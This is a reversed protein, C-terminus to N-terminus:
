FEGGLMAIYQGYTMGKAKAEAQRQMRLKHAAQTLKRNAESEKRYDRKVLNNAMKRADNDSVVDDDSLLSILGGSDVEIAENFDKTQKVYDGDETRSFGFTELRKPDKVVLM